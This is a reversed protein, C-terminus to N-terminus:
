LLRVSGLVPPKAFIGYNTADKVELQLRYNSIDSSHVDFEFSFCTFSLKSATFWQVPLLDCYTKLVLIELVTKPCVHNNDSSKLINDLFFMKDYCMFHRVCLLFKLAGYGGEYLVSRNMKSMKDLLIFNWPTM